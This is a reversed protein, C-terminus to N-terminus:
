QFFSRSFKDSQESTVGLVNIIIFQFSSSTHTSTTLILAGYIDLWKIHKSIYNYTIIKVVGKKNTKLLTITKIENHNKKTSTHM